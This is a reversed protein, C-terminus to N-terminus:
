VSCEKTIVRRKQDAFRRSCIDKLQGGGDTPPPSSKQACHPPFGVCPKPQVRATFLPSTRQLHRCYFYRGRLRVAQCRWRKMGVRLLAPTRPRPRTFLESTSRSHRGTKSPALTGGM